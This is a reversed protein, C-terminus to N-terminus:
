GVGVSESRKRVPVNLHSFFAGAYIHVRVSDTREGHSTNTLM